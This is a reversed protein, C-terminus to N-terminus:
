VNHDCQINITKCEFVAATTAAAITATIDTRDIVLLANLNSYILYIRRCIEIWNVHRFKSSICDICAKKCAACNRAVDFCKLLWESRLIILNSVFAYGVCMKVTIRFVNFSKKPRFSECLVFEQGFKTNWILFLFLFLFWYLCNVTVKFLNETSIWMSLLLAAPENAWACRHVPILTIQIASQSLYLPVAHWLSQSRCRNSQSCSM